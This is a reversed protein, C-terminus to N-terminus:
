LMICVKVSISIFGILKCHAACAPYYLKVHQVQGCGWCGNGGRGQLVRHKPNATTITGVCAAIFASLLTVLGMSRLYSGHLALGAKFVLVSGAIELLAQGSILLSVATVRNFGQMVMVMLMLMVMVMVVDGVGDGVAWAMLTALDCWIKALLCLCGEIANKGIKVWSAALTPSYCSVVAKSM